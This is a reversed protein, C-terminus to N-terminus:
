GAHVLYGESAMQEGGYTEHRFTFTQKRPVAFKNFFKFISILTIRLGSYCRPASQFEDFLDLRSSNFIAILNFPSKYFDFPLMSGQREPM